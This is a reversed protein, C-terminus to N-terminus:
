DEVVVEVQIQQALLPQPERVQGQVEEAQGAQEVLLVLTLALAM